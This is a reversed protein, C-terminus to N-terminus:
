SSTKVAGCFSCTWFDHPIGSEGCTLCAWGASAALPKTTLCADCQLSMAPNLLTCAPCSWESSTSPPKTALNVPPPTNAVSTTQLPRMASTPAKRKATTSKNATPIKSPGPVPDIFEIEDDSDDLTLDIVKNEVSEKAAKEAEKRATEGQGCM